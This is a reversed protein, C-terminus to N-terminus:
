KWDIVHSSVSDSYAATLNTIQNTALDIIFIDCTSKFEGELSSNRKTFTESISFNSYFSFLVIFGVFKFVNKYYM